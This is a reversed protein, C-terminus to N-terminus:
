ELRIPRINWDFGISAIHQQFAAACSSAPACPSTEYNFQYSVFASFRPGLQRQVAASAFGYDYSSWPVGLPVAEISASTAYGGDIGVRWLRSIERGVSLRYINSNGGALFGFGGTQLRDYSLALNYRYRSYQLSAQATANLQQGNLGTTETVKTVEPGAGLVLNLRARVRHRYVLQASSTTIIGVGAQTFLFRQYGYAVGISDRRDLQYNYGVQATIQRDNYLSQSSGSYDSISYSGGLSISSRKTLAETLSAASVNTIFSEYDLPMQTAGLYDSAEPNALIGTGTGPFRLNYASAGGFSSSGFNGDRLYNFSNEFVLQLKRWGIHHDVDLTHVQEVYAGSSGYSGNFTAGGVYNIDTQSGSRPKQLSLSGLISSFPSVQFSNGTGSSDAAAGGSLHVGANVYSPSIRIPSDVSPQDSDSIPSSPDTQPIDPELVPQTVSGGTEGDVRPQTSGTQSWGPTRFMALFTLAWVFAKSGRRM